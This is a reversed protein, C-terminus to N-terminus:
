IRDSLHDKMYGKDRHFIAKIEIRNEESKIDYIARYDKGGRKNKKIRYRYVKRGDIEILASDPHSTPNEELDEIRNLIWERTDEDLNEIDELAKEKIKLDM